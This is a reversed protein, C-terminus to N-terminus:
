QCVEWFGLCFVVVILAFCGCVQQNSSAIAHFQQSFDLFVFGFWKYSPLFFSMIVWFFDGFAILVVAFGKQFSRGSGGTETTKGLGFFLM